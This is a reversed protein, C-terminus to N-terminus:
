LISFYTWLPQKIHQHFVHTISPRVPLSTFEALTPASSLERELALPAAILSIMEELLILDIKSKM